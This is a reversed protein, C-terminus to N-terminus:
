TIKDLVEKGLKTIQYLKGKRLDPAHCKILKMERLEKLTRSIHSIKIDLEKELQTPTKTEKLTKLVKKRYASSQVLGTLKWKSVM